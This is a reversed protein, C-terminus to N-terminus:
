GGTRVTQTESASIDLALVGPSGGGDLKTALAANLATKFAQLATNLEAYTVLRKSSGNLKINGSADLAIYAKLTEGDSSTSYITVEGANVAFALKYNHVAVVIGYRRGRSIPVFIGRMNKTPQGFVGPSQYLETELTEGGIGTGTVVVANGPASHWRKVASSAIKVLEAIVGM